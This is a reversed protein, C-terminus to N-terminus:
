PKKQRDLYTQLILAASLKHTLEKKKELSMKGTNLITQAQQSTFREDIFYAPLNLNRELLQSLKETELAAKGKSGDKNLPLGIVLGQVQEKTVIQSLQAILDKKGQYHIVSYPSALLGSPDSLALGIHNLGPDLGLLRASM